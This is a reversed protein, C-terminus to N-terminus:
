AKVWGQEVAYDIVHLMKQWLVESGDAIRGNVAVIQDRSVGHEVWSQGQNNYNLLMPMMRDLAKAYKADATKASEFELWLSLLADSQDDPLLGFLRKAAALEKEEQEASAAADYVFTDGADIEVIDHILLMKIVRSLNVPENAHEELLVALLAVQWSHEASNERRGEASKVKTQRLVAKLQDIEIILALQKELRQM